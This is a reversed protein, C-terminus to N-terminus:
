KITTLMNLIIQLRTLEIREEKTKNNKILLEIYREKISQYDYEDM